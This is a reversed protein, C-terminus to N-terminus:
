LSHVAASLLEQLHSHCQRWWLTSQGVLSHPEQHVPLHESAYGQQRPYELSSVESLPHLLDGQSHLNFQALKKRDHIHDFNWVAQMAPKTIILLPSLLFIHVFLSPLALFMCYGETKCFIFDCKEKSYISLPPRNNNKVTQLDGAWFPNWINSFPFHTTQILTYWQM